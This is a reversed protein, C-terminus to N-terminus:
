RILWGGEVYLTQGTVWAADESALFAIADAIDEPRGVRGLPYRGAFRAEVQEESGRSPVTGPGVGTVRIGAEALDLALAKTLMAVGGKSAAYHVQQRFPVVSEVSAVNVIRGRHGQAVWRRAAEQCLLFPATLNTDITRQWQEDTIELADLGSMVGLSNVLVDLGGLAAITRDLADVVAARGRLDATIALARGGTATIQAAVAAAADGDLDVVSVAAGEAALRRATAGGINGGGGTVVAVEGDFRHARVKRSPTPVHRPADSM